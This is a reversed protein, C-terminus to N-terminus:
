QRSHSLVRHIHYDSLLDRAETLAKYVEEISSCVRTFENNNLVIIIM